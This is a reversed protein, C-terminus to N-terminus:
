TREGGKPAELGPALVLVEVPQQVGLLLLDGDVDEVTGLVVGPAEQRAVVSREVRDGGVTELPDKVSGSSGRPSRASHRILL